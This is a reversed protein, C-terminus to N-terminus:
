GRRQYPTAAAVTKPQILVGPARVIAVDPQAAGAFAAAQQSRGLRRVESHHLSVTPVWRPATAVPAAGGQSPGGLARHYLHRVVLTGCNTSHYEDTHIKDIPLCSCPPGRLARGARRASSLELSHLGSPDAFLRPARRKQARSRSALGRPRPRGSILQPGQLSRTWAARAELGSQPRHSWKGANSARWRVDLGMAVPMVNPGVSSAVM